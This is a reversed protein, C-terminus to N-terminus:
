VHKCKISKPHIKDVVPLNLWLILPEDLVSLNCGESVARLCYRELIIKLVERPYNQIFGSSWKKENEINKFKHHESITSFLLLHPFHPDYSPM